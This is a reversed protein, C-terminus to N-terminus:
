RKRKRGGATRKKKKKSKVREPLSRGKSAKDWEEVVDEAIDGRKAAAHFFKRQADSKYPM